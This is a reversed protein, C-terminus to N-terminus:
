AFLSITGLNGTAAAHKEVEFEDSILGMATLAV